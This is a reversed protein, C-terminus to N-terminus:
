VRTLLFNMYMGYGMKYALFNSPKSFSLFLIDYLEMTQTYRVLIDYYVHLYYLHHELHYIQAIKPEM